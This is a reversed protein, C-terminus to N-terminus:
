LDILSFDGSRYEFQFSETIMGDVATADDGFQADQGNADDLLLDFRNLTTNIQSDEAKQGEPATVSFQVFALNDGRLIYDSGTVEVEFGSLSEKLQAVSTDLIKAILGAKPLAM